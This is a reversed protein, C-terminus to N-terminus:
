KKNAPIIKILTLVYTLHQMVSKKFTITIENLTIKKNNNHIYTLQYYNIM